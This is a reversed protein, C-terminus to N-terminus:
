QSPGQGMQTSQLHRYYHVVRQEPKIQLRARHAQSQGTLRNRRVILPVPQADKIFVSHAEWFFVESNGVGAEQAVEDVLAKADQKPDLERYGLHRPIVREGLIRAWRRSRLKTSRAWGVNVAGMVVDDTFACFLEYSTPPELKGDGVLEEIAEGLAANLAVNTKHNLIQVFLQYRSWLMDSIAHEAKDLLLVTPVQDISRLVLSKLLLDSDIVGYPVGCHMSDRVLYDMRDVDVTGSLLDHLASQLHKAATDGSEGLAVCVARNVEAFRDSPQIGLLLASVDRAVTEPSAGLLKNCAEVVREAQFIRQTLLLGIPEHDAPLRASQGGVALYEDLLQREPPRGFRAFFEDLTGFFPREGIRVSEISHSFASHGVDHLLAAAAFVTELYQAQKVDAATPLSALLGRIAKRGLHMAGLSHAFRTHVAGPFVFHLLGNQRIYRLRQFERTDVVASALPDLEIDRHVPDRITCTRLMISRRAIPM